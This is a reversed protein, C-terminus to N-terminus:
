QAGRLVHYYSGVSLKLGVMVTEKPNSIRPESLLALTASVTDSIHHHWVGRADMIWNEVPGDLVDANRVIDRAENWRILAVTEGRAQYQTLRQNVREQDFLDVIDRENRTLQDERAGRGISLPLHKRYAVAFGTKNEPNQFYLAVGVYDIGAEGVITLNSRKIETWDSIDPPPSSSNHVLIQALFAYFILAKM